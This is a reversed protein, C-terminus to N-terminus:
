VRDTVKQGDGNREVPSVSQHSRVARTLALVPCPATHALEHTTSGHVLRGIPGYDRSGLILLDVSAGYLALEKRAPGYVAHAEIGGLAEIRAIADEVLSEVIDETPAPVGVFAYSPLSVAEFASLKAGHQAALKRAVAIAHDSEASGNYAVGIERLPRAHELYGAPAIAVACPSHNLTVSADDGILVRGTITRRNSGIVLLDAALSQVLEHLGHGVSSAGHTLLAAEIGTDTRAQELLGYARDREIAEFDRNTGRGIAPFGAHIHVLTITSHPEALTRALAIADRGGDHEGVGVLIKNFMANEKERCRM